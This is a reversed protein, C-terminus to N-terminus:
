SKQSLLFTLLDGKEEASCERNVVDKCNRKFWKEIKAANTFREPNSVPALPEIPKHTVVHQGHNCPNETHCSSCSWDGGHQAKFFQKGRDANFGSFGPNDHKAQENFIVLFDQAHEAWAPAAIVWCM